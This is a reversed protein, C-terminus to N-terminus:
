ELLELVTQEMETKEIVRRHLVPRKELDQLGRPIEQGTHAALLNLLAFESHQRTIEEGLLAGAVSVNFKFPSATSIVVGPTRDGTERLYQEYVALGVATHTDVLYAHEAFVRAITRTTEEDDAFGAWFTEQVAKKTEADVQYRGRTQLAEMWARLREPDHGTLEFLLRELNSSILIDMSPSLTRYFARNRDYSGSRIFDTLIHNQNSACILKGVPLGLQRAYYGALINGFNGTPVVFNVPEGPALAQNELLHLYTSFYYVVQPVLRGWNISNASSFRFGREALIRNVRSGAFIQKVGTQTDDFNGRVAVVATNSGEQTVMQQKQVESVGEEPFFVVIRTGPVDAFGELAAKGTDGSTAVLIVVEAEDGRAQMSGALLYPMLQLAIDKFACTPGHWLELLHLGEALTHVPATQPGGFCDPGYAQQTWAALTEGSFEPFFPKLLAAALAPYAAGRYTEYPFLPLEGTPVFLGGDPAIGRTIAEAASVAAAASRTSYYHM